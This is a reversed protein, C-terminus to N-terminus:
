AETAPQETGDLADRLRDHVHILGPHNHRAWKVATRVREIAAQAERAEREAKGVTGIIEDVVSVDGGEEELMSRTLRLERKTERWQRNRLSIQAWLNQLQTPDAGNARLGARLTRLETEAIQARRRLTTTRRELLKKTEATVADAQEARRCWDDRDREIEEAKTKWTARGAALQDSLRLEAEVHQRLLADEDPTLGAAARTLLNRLSARRDAREADEARGPPPVITCALCYSGVSGATPHQECGSPRVLTDLVTSVTARHEAAGPPEPIWQTIRPGDDATTTPADDTADPLQVVPTPMRDVARRVQTTLADLARVVARADASPQTM